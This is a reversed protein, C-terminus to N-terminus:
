CAASFRPAHNHIVPSPAIKRQEPPALAPSPTAKEIM